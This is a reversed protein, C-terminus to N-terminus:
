EGQEPEAPTEPTEPTVPAYFTCGDFDGNESISEFSFSDWVEGYIANMYNTADINIKGVAGRM